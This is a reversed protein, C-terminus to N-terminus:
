RNPPLLPVLPLPQPFFRKRAFLTGEAALATNIKLSNRHPQFGCGKLALDLGSNKRLSHFEHGEWFRPAQTRGCQM